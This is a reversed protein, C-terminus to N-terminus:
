EQSPGSIGQQEAKRQQTAVITSAILLLVVWLILSKHRFATGMNGEYAGAIVSYISFFLLSPALSNFFALRRNRIFMVVIFLFSSFWLFNEVAALRSSESTIDQPFIPRFLFTFTTYPARYLLCVPKVLYEPVQPVCSVSKIASKAGIQNSENNSELSIGQGILPSIPNRVGIISERTGLSRCTYKRGEIELVEKDKDCNLGLKIAENTPASNNEPKSSDIVYFSQSTEVRVGTTFIQGIIMGLIIFVTLTRALKIRIQIILFIVLTVGLITAVQYRSIYIMVLLTTILIGNLIFSKNRNLFIRDVLILTSIAWFETASERLGVVSWFLHSPLFCYVGFLILILKQSVIERRNEVRIQEVTKLLYYLILIATGIAYASAIIRVSNIGSVGVRNLLVAPEILTRSIRFLGPNPYDGASKDNAIWETLDGYTGEDPALNSASNPLAFFAMVRVVFSAFVIAYLKSKLTTLRLSFLKM